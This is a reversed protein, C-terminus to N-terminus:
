QFQVVFALIIMFLLNAFIQSVYYVTLLVTDYLIINFM